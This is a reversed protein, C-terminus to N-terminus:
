VAFRAAIGAHDPPHDVVGPTAPSNPHRARMAPLAEFSNLTPSEQAPLSGPRRAVFNDAEDTSGTGKYQATQPYPCLPRTRVLRGGAMRSAVIRDPAEGQEV